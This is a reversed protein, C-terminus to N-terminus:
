GAQVAIRQASAAAAVAQRPLHLSLVGDRHEARIAEAEVERPLSFRRWWRPASDEGGGASVTLTRGEVTLDIEELRVGPVDMALLYADERTFIDTAPTHHHYM